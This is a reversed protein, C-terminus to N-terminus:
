CTPRMRIVRKRIENLEKAGIGRSHVLEVPDLGFKANTRDRKVVHVHPDHPITPVIM